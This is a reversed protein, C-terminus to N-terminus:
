SGSSQLAAIQSMLAAIQGQIAGAQAEDGKQIAVALSSQLGQLQGQLKESESSSDASSGANGSGSGSFAGGDGATESTSQEQGGSGNKALLQMAEQSITVLDSKASPSLVTSSKNQEEQGNKYYNSISGIANDQSTNLLSLIDM